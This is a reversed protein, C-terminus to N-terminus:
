SNISKLFDNMNSDIEEKESNSQLFSLERISSFAAREFSPNQKDRIFFVM